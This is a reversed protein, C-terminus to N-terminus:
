AIKHCAIKPMPSVGRDSDGAPDAIRRRCGGITSSADDELQRQGIRNGFPEGILLNNATTTNHPTMTGTPDFQPSTRPIM